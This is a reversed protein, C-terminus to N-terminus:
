LLDIYESFCNEDISIISQPIKISKLNFCYFFTKSRLKKLNTSLHISSLSYCNFFSTSALEELSNPLYISSLSTCNSFCSIEITKLQTSLYISTLSYCNYFCCSYLKTISNPITISKLKICNSFCSYGIRNIKANESFLIYKLQEMGHFCYNDISTIESPIQISTLYTKKFKENNIRKLNKPIDISFLEKEFMLIKYESQLSNSNVNNLSTLSILYNKEFSNKMFKKLKRPLTLEKLSTCYKLENSITEIHVPFKFSQLSICKFFCFQGMEKVNDHIQISSLHKCNEFCNNGIKTISSPLIISKLKMANLFCYDGLHNIFNPIINETFSLNLNMLFINKCDNGKLKEILYEEYNMKYWIIRKQIKKNEEYRKQNIEYLHLTEINKFIKLEKENKIEIPNYHFQKTNGKFRPSSLELNIYDNITEFYKSTIFISYKDIKKMKNITTKM